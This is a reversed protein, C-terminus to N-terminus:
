AARVANLFNSVEVKLRTSDSSLSQAASLVQSSASGTESAGRQVDTINSSVQMTGQAAQQVNRSIEQTAAGQEEVASAITSAIESMRGITDGIEKIAGVSDQTAAQIGAIQTSIEGTAKATQEALAKVESAVVAFGRGAEGARAAEITANLALLNTQGAINNILEVVDGIRAAATALESVRDNTQRAQQVAQGAINASEQVQRSIENISSAMEETASAVSQVNTSAQESAAAVSTTLEQSREATATLTGASAELETSASSVTEVVEGIMAEFDSTIKDVRRGREIKAEADAAAAEDAARKDILAQKFVQLADGMTGMETKMGQHPVHASLDGAGLAQMPKVISSIGNAVDRVLYISVGIGVVAAVTLITLVLMFASNFSAEAEAGATDSGKTNLDIDKILLEDAKLGIPNVTKTNLVNAEQPMRGAAKRSLEMVELTGKKYTDWVRSWEEYIAREEPSTILKEYNARIRTNSAVVTELTKENALKEELTEALMHQRIVNRYTTVGARLEGLLRVSPLWSTQIDVTNANISRMKVIALVGLGSMSLLLFTVVISIKARISMRALM